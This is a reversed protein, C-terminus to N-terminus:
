RKNRDYFTRLIPISFLQLPFIGRSRLMGRRAVIKVSVIIKANVLVVRTDAEVFPLVVIVVVLVVDTPPSSCSTTLLMVVVLVVLLLGLATKPLGNMITSNSVALTLGILSVYMSIDVTFLTVNIGGFAVAPVVIFAVSSAFVVTLMRGLPRARSLPCLRITVSPSSSSPIASCSFAVVVKTSMLRIFGSPEPLPVPTTNKLVFEVPCSANRSLMTPIFSLSNEGPPPVMLTQSHFPPVSGNSILPPAVVISFWVVM